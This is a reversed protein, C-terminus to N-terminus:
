ETRKARVLTGPIIASGAYLGISAYNMHTPRDLKGIEFQAQRAFNLIYGRAANGIVIQGDEFTDDVAVQYGGINPLTGNGYVLLNNLYAGNKDKAFRIASEIDSAIYIKAGTRQIKTLKSVLGEITAVEQGATYTTETVDTSGFVTELGKGTSGNSKDAANIVAAASDERFDHTIMETIYADLDIGTLARLEDTFDVETELWGYSLSKEAWEIAAKDGAKTEDRYKASTRSKRYPIKSYGAVFTKTIDDWFPTRITTRVDTYLADYLTETPILLGGNNIGQTEAAPAVFTTATTTISDGLARAFAGNVASVQEETLQGQRAMRNFVYALARARTLKVENQDMIKTRENPVAEAQGESLEDRRSKVEAIKQALSDASRKLEELAPIDQKEAKARAQEGIAQSERMLASLQDDLERAKIEKETM